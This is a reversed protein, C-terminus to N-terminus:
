SVSQRLLVYLSTGVTARALFLTSPCIMPPEFAYRFYIEFMVRAYRYLIWNFVDRIMLINLIDFRHYKKSSYILYIM